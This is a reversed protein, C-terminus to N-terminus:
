GFVPSIFGGSGGTGCGAVELKLEAIYARLRTVNATTYSVSEGNSDVVRQIGGGILLNHLAQQAERLREAASLTM